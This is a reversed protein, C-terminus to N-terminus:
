PGAAAGVIVEPIGGAPVGGTKDPTSPLASILATDRNVTTCPAM